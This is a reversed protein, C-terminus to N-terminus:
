DKIKEWLMKIEKVIQGNGYEILPVGRVISRSVQESFPLLALVDIGKDKTTQKIRETNTTNLDFKNVVVKAPINFHRAVQAVRELDHMGSLTPETIIIALDAGTLSAIVPCGIGPPGDILVYDRREDEAIRTAHQRVLTVLKGSNEEAVGLAAHVMPGYRTDSIFWEGSRNEEMCVAASPCIHSCVGCGECAIPDIMFNDSIADFRCATVCEGCGQCLWSKVVAIKGSRFEHHERIDPHLILHLDAADVDCDAMVKNEALVALSATLITKGTGGKGSIIAIQKMTDEVLAIGSDVAHRTQM